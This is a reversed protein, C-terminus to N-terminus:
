VIFPLTCLHLMHHRLPVHELGVELVGEEDVEVVRELYSCEHISYHSNYKKYVVSLNYKMRSYM